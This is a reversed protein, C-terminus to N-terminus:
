FARKTHPLSVLRYGAFSGKHIWITFRGGVAPLNEAGVAKAVFVNGGVYLLRISISRRFFRSTWLSGYVEMPDLWQNGVGSPAWAFGVM